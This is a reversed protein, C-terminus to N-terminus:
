ISHIPRFSQISLNICVIRISVAELVETAYAGVPACKVMYCIDKHLVGRVKATVKVASLCCTFNEGMKSGSGYDTEVISVESPQCNFQKAVAERYIDDSIKDSESAMKM